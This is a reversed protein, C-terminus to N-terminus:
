KNLSQSSPITVYVNRSSKLIIESFYVIGFIANIIIIGHQFKTRSGLAYSQGCIEAQFGWLVLFTKSLERFTLSVGGQAFPDTKCADNFNYKSVCCLINTNHDFKMLPDLHHWDSKPALIGM